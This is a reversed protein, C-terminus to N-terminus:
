QMKDVVLLYHSWIHKDLRRQEIIKFGKASFLRVLQNLAVYDVKSQTSLYDTIRNAFAKWRPFPDLDKIIVRTGPKTKEVVQKLVGMKREQPIHHLVDILSILNSHALFEEPIQEAVIFQISPSTNAAQALCISKQNQDIGVGCQLSIKRDALLLFSGTGCGIDLLRASRPIWKIAEHFPAYQPRYISLIKQRFSLGLARGYIQKAIQSLESASTTVTEM